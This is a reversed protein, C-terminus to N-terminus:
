KEELLISNSTVDKWSFTMGNTSVGNSKLMAIVDQKHTEKQELISAENNKFQFTTKDHCLDFDYFPENRFEYNPAQPNFKEELAVSMRNCLKDMDEGIAVLSYENTTGVKERLGAFVKGEENMSLLSTWNHVANQPKYSWTENGQGDWAYLGDNDVSVYARNQKDLLVKGSKKTQKWKVNFTKDYVTLGTDGTVYVSGDMDSVTVANPKGDLKVTKTMQGDQRSVVNLAYGSADKTTLFLEDNEALELIGLNDNALPYVIAKEWLIDGNKNVSYIKNGATFFLRGERDIKIASSLNKAINKQWKVNGNADYVFIQQLDNTYITGDKDITVSAFNTSSANISPIESRWLVKGTVSQLAVLHNAERFYLTDNTGLVLNRVGGTPQYSWKVAGKADYAVITTKVTAASEVTYFTGDEDLLTQYVNAKKFPKFSADLENTQAGNYLSNFSWSESVPQQAHSKYGGNEYQKGLSFGAGTTEASGTGGFGFLSASLTFVSAFVVMKKKM